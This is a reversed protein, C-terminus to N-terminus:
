RGAARVSIRTPTFWTIMSHRAMTTRVAKMPIGPNPAFSNASM